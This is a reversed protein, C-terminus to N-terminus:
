VVGAAGNNAIGMSVNLGLTPFLQGLTNFFTTAGNLTSFVGNNMGAVILNTMYGEAAQTRGQNTKWKSLNDEMHAMEMTLAAQMNNRSTETQSIAFDRLATNVATQNALQMTNLERAGFEWAQNRAAVNAARTRNQWDTNWQRAENEAQINFQEGINREKATFEAARNRADVGAMGAQYVSAADQQAIPLAYDYKARLVSEMGSTSRTLGMEAMKAQELAAARQMGPANEDLMQNVRHEVLAGGEPTYEEGQYGGFQGQAADYGLASMEDPTYTAATSTVPAYGYARSAFDRYRYDDPMTNGGTIISMPNVNLQDVTGDRYTTIPYQPVASPDYVGGGYNAGGPNIAM